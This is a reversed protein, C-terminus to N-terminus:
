GERCLPTPELVELKDSLFSIMSIMKHVSRPLKVLLSRAREQPTQLAEFRAPAARSPWDVSGLALALTPAQRYEEIADRWQGIDILM